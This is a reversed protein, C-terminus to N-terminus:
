VSYLPRFDALRFLTETAVSPEDPLVAAALACSKFARAATSIQHHLPNVARGLEPPSAEGWVTIDTLGSRVLKVVEARVRSDSRLMDVGVALAGERAATRIAAPFGDELASATAGLIALPRPDDPQACLVDIDWGARARDFLWGGASRVVDATSSAIVTLRYRLVPGASIHREVAHSVPASADDATFPRTAM